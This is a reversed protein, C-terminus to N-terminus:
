PRVKLIVANTVSFHEPVISADDEIIGQFSVNLAGHFGAPRRFVEGPAPMSPFTPAGLLATHGINNFIARPQPTSGAFPTPFIMYGLHRPLLTLTAPTPLGLWAYLVYRADTRSSPVNMYLTIATDIPITLVRDVDGTNGNVLLVDELPGGRRNVSGFRASIFPSVFEFAGPLTASGFSSTVQVDVTGMGPPTRVSIHDPAVETIAALGGGFFARMDSDDTFGSGGIQIWDGGGEGGRTPGVSSLRPPPGATWTDGLALTGADTGGFMLPMNLVSDFAAAHDNRASPANAPTSETWNNGDWSWTDGQLITQIVPGAQYRFGGFLLLSGINSDFVMVHGSHFPPTTAPSQLAWNSGDWTWTDSFNTCTSRTCGANGGFLVTVGNSEDFAMAHQTRANPPSGPFRQIWNTGDWEWTDSLYGSADRGGFLVTKGRVSDFAMAHGHRPSPSSGPSSPFWFTGDWEWTDGLDGSDDGGGFLVVRGRASDFAMAFSQRASPATATFLNTWGSGDWEWTEPLLTGGGDRGGFLVVRGRISDGALAHGYRGTPSNGPGLLRWGTQAFGINPCLTLSVLFGLSGFRAHM